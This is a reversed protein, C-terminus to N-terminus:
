ADGRLTALRGTSQELLTPDGERGLMGVQQCPDRRMKFL